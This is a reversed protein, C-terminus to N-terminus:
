SFSDRFRRRSEADSLGRGIANRSFHEKVWTDGSLLHDLHVVRIRYSYRRVTPNDTPFAVSKHLGTFTETATVIVFVGVVEARLELRIELLEVDDHYLFCDYIRTMVQKAGYGIAIANVCHPRRKGRAF